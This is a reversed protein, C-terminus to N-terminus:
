LKWIALYLIPHHSPLHQGILDFHKKNRTAVGYGNALATAAVFVDKWHQNRQSNTLRGFVFAAISAVQQDFNLVRCDKAFQEIQDLRQQLDQNLSGQKAIEKEIGWQAEFITIAALKPYAELRGFYDRIEKTIQQNQNRWLTFIDNDLLLPTNPPPPATAM